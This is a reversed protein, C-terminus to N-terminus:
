RQRRLSLKRRPLCNEEQGPCFPIEKGREVLLHLVGVVHVHATARAMKGERDMILSSLLNLTVTPVFAALLWIFKMCALRPFAGIKFCQQESPTM